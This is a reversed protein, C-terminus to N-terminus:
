MQLLMEANKHMVADRQQDNSAYFDEANRSFWQVMEVSVAPFDSGFLIRDASIFAQMAALTTEHTSLATDYYFTKFDELIEEHSLPCGMHRSLVAVRPALFPTVGGLHALIIKVNPFRRKKGSVVLHAAAKFTENPVETVPIGLYPHPYPTSSPVQAGHLFVVAARRDLEEWIPDFADDGIYRAEPGEGYSSSLVVGCAELEDLAFKIEDLGGQIDFLNPMCAFFAFRGPHGASIQSGLCNFERASKRNEHGVPGAPLGAPMSLVALRIGLKDMAELSVEPTWPLNEAPTQWGVNMSLAAKGISTPFIHHHIDVRTPQPDDM